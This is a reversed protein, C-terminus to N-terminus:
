SNYWTWIVRQLQLPFFTVSKRAQNCSYDSSRYITNEFLKKSFQPVRGHSHGWKANVDADHNLLLKVLEYHQLAVAIRLPPRQHKSQENVSAGNQLLLQVVEIQRKEVASTLPSSFNVDAGRDLLLRTIEISGIGSALILCKNGAYDLSFNPDIGTDLLSQVIGVNSSEIAVPLFTRAITKSAPSKASLFTKLLRLGKNQLLIEFAESKHSETLLNNSALHLMSLLAQLSPDPCFEHFVELSIPGAKSALQALSALKWRPSEDAM